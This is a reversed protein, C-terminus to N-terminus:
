LALLIQCFVMPFIIGVSEQFTYKHNFLIQLDAFTILYMQVEKMTVENTTEGTVGTVHRYYPKVAVYFM